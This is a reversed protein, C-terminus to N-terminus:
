RFGLELCSKSMKIWFAGHLFSTFQFFVNTYQLPLASVDVLASDHNVSSCV